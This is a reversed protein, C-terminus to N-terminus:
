RAGAWASSEEEVLQLRHSRWFVLAVGLLGGLELGTLPLLSPQYAMPHSEPFRWGGIFFWAAYSGAIFIVMATSRRWSPAMLSGFIVASFAAAAGILATRADLPLFSDVALDSTLGRVIAGTGAGLINGIVLGDIAALPTLIWRLAQVAFNSM